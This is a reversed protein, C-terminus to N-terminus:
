LSTLLWNKVALRFSHVGVNERVNMPVTRWIQSAAVMFSRKGMESRSGHVTLEKRAQSRLTRDSSVCSLLRSLYEPQGCRIAKYIILCWRMRICDHVSLWGKQRMLESIKQSRKLRYTVRFAARIVRQLKKLLCEDVGFLVAPSSEIRSLVLAHMLVALQGNSLVRRLRHLARLNGYSTRCISDIHASFKLNSDLLIGLNRVVPKLPFSKGEITLSTPLKALQKKTGIAMFETKEVNLLLFNQRTWKEIKSICNQLKKVGDSFTCPSTHTLLQVDDAYKSHKVGSEEIVESLDRIYISFLLPGLVSGQPVGMKLALPQSMLGDVQTSHSRGSLYVKFWELAEGAIGLSLLKQSLLNHDVTDFAASMDLFAMITVERKDMATYADNLISLITTECSHHKKYASQFPDTLHNHELHFLVKKHVVKEIVKVISPFNSVPRYNKLDNPDLSPKKLLPVIVSHKWISPLGHQLVCNVICVLLPMLVPAAVKLMWHPLIDLSNPKFKFERFIQVLDAGTIKGFSLLLQPVEYQRTAVCESLPVISRRL